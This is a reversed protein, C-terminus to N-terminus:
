DIIVASAGTNLTRWDALHLDLEMRAMEYPLASELSVAIVAPGMRVAECRRRRLHNLLDHVLAVDSIRVRMGCIHTPTAKEVGQIL